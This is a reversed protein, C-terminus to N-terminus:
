IHILSLRCAVAVAWPDDPEGLDLLRCLRKVDDESLTEVLLQRNPKDLLLGESGFQSVVLSALKYSAVQKSDLHELISITEEGLLESLEASGIRSLTDLLKQM